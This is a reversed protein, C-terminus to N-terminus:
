NVSLYGLEHTILTTGDRVNLIMLMNLVGIDNCRSSQIIVRNLQADYIMDPSYVSIPQDGVIIERTLETRNCAIDPLLIETTAQDQSFFYSFFPGLSGTNPVM